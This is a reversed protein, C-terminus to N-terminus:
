KECSKLAAAAGRAWLKKLTQFKFPSALKIFHTFGVFWDSFNDTGPREFDILGQTSPIVSRLFSMLGVRQSFLSNRSHYHHAHCRAMLLYIRMAFEGREGVSSMGLYVFKLYTELAAGLNSLNWVKAELKPFLSTRSLYGLAAESLVPESIYNVLLSAVSKHAGLVTAMGRAVLNHTLEASPQLYICSVSGLLAVARTDRVEECDQLVKEWVVKESSACLLKSRALKLMDSSSQEVSWMPRGLSFFAIQHTESWHLDRLLYSVDDEVDPCCCVDVPNVYFIPPCVPDLDGLKERLSPHQYLSPRITEFMKSSTDMFVIFVGSEISALRLLRLATYEEKGTVHINLLEEVEDIFLVFKNNFESKEDAAVSKEQSSHLRSQFLTWSNDIELYLEPISSRHPKSLRFEKQFETFHAASAKLFGVLDNKASKEDEQNLLSEIMHIASSTRRPFYREERARRCCMFSVVVESDIVHEKSDGAYHHAILEGVLRSKGTSFYNTSIVIFFDRVAERLNFL